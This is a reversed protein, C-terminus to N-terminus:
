FPLAINNVPSFASQSQSLVAAPGSTTKKPSDNSKDDKDKDTSTTPEVTTEPNPDPNPDPNPNPNPDEKDEIILNVGFYDKSGDEYTVMVTFANKGPKSMDPLDSVIEVKANEPINQIETEALLKENTVISNKYLVVTKNYTPENLWSDKVDGIVILVGQHETKGNPYKFTVFVKEIGPVNTQPIRNVTANTGEPKEKLNVVELIEDETIEKNLPVRMVVDELNKYVNESVIITFPETDISGDPYTAVVSLVYKGLISTDPLTGEIDIVTGLPLNTMNFSSIIDSKSLEDNQKVVFLKEYKNIVKGLDYISNDKVDGVIFPISGEVSSNDPYIIKYGLNTVKPASTDATGYTLIKKTGKPENYITINKLIQESTIIDNVKARFPEVNVKYVKADWSSDITVFTVYAYDISEDPYIIKVTAGLFEDVGISFYNTNINIVEFETGKPANPLYVKALIQDETPTENRDLYITGGVPTYKNADTSELVRVRATQNLVIENPLQIEVEVYHIGAEKTDPINKVLVKTGTPLDSMDIASKIMDETLKDGVFIDIDKIEVYSIEKEKVKVPVKIIKNTGDPFTVTVETEFEGVKETSPIEGTVIAKTNTPADKTLNVHRIIKLEDIVEGVSVTVPSVRIYNNYTEENYFNINVYITKTSKDPYTILVSVTAYGEVDLVPISGMIEYTTENPAFPVTIAEFIEKETVKTNVPVEILKTRLEYKENDLLPTIIVPVEVTKTKGDTFTVKVEVKYEGPKANIEPIASIVEKSKILTYNSSRVHGKVNEENIITGQKVEFPNIILNYKSDEVTTTVPEETTTTPEITTVTTEAPQTSETTGPATADPATTAEAPTTSTTTESVTTTSETSTIDQTNSSSANVPVVPLILSMTLVCSLIGASAKKLSHKRIVNTDNENKPMLVKDNKNEM